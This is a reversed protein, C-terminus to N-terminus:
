SSIFSREVSPIPLDLIEAINKKAIIGKSKYTTALPSGIDLEERIKKMGFEDSLVEVAVGLKKAVYEKAKKLKVKKSLQVRAVLDGSTRIGGM